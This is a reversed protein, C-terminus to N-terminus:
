GLIDSPGVHTLGENTQELKSELRSAASRSANLSQDLEEPCASPEDEDL